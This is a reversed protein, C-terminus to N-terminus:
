KLDVESLYLTRRVSADKPNVYIYESDKTSLIRNGQKCLNFMYSDLQQKAVHINEFAKVTTCGDIMLYITM